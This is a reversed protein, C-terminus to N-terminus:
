VGPYGHWMEIEDYLLMQSMSHGYINSGDMYITKKNKVSKVYRDGMVSSVGGRINNELTSIMDKDQLTQLKIDTYQLAREYAYSPLSLCYLPSIDHEKTSVKVFKEFVDALLMVDSKCYFKTIEEGDKINFLNIIEKIREIEEDDPYKNKLKSFFEEKKLNDVHKDHDEISKFYQYPYAM